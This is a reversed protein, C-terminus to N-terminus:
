KQKHHRCCILSRMGVRSLDMWIRATMYKAKYMRASSSHESHRLLEKALVSLPIMSDGAM